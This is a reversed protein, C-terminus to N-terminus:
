PQERLFSVFARTESEDELISALAQAQGRGSLFIPSAIYVFQAGLLNLPGAADLAWAVWHHLGSKRLSELWSPWFSRPSDM